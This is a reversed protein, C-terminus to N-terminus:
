STPGPRERRSEHVLRRVLASTLGAAAGVEDTSHGAELAATVAAALRADHEALAAARARATRRVDGLSKDARRKEGAFDIIALGGDPDYVRVVRLSRAGHLYRARMDEVAAEVEARSRYTTSKGGVRTQWPAM